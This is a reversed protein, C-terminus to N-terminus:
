LWEIQINSYYQYHSENLDFRKTLLINWKIKARNKKDFIWVILKKCAETCTFVTKHHTFVESHWLPRVKGEQNMQTMELLIDANSSFTVIALWNTSTTSEIFRKAFIQLFFIIVNKFLNNELELLKANKKQKLM